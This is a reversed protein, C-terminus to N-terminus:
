RKKRRTKRKSAPQEGKLKQLFHEIEEPSLGELRKEPSLGELREEPSLGQLAERREEPTLKKLKEKIYDKLFDEMTYSMAIGEGQYGEFLQDLLTSTRESRKQYHEAGYGVQEASASFLHLPANQEERSLQGAVVVRIVDTGRRCEYVGQQLQQWPVTQSLNHPFRSSVAYLRFESEPLLPAERPTLSKRYAVYHGTLEKLAWDDLTDKHSKFSILNHAALNDLGDPLRGAFRGKRKRVIIVDLFQQQHSLDKEVDVAFPSGTFFDTLLLGFLRHWEVM